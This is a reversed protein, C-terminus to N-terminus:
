QIHESKCWQLTLFQLNFWRLDPVQILVYYRNMQTPLFHGDIQNQPM